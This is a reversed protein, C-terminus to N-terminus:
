QNKAKGTSDLVINDPGGYGGACDLCLFTSLPDVLVSHNQIEVQDPTQAL